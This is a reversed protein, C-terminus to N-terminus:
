ALARGEDSSDSAAGDQGNVIMVGPPLDGSNVSAQLRTLSDSVIGVRVGTGDVGLQQRLEAARTARDGQTTVSGVRAVGYDPLGVWRVFPLAAVDHLAELPLSVYLIGAAANSRLVRVGHEQLTRLTDATQTTTYLFVEMAGSDQLRVARGMADRTAAIGQQSVRAAASQVSSAIRHSTKAPHPAPSTGPQAHVLARGGSGLLLMMLGLRLCWQYTTM